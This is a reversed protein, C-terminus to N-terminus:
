EQPPEIGYLPCEVGCLTMQFSGLSCAAQLERREFEAVADWPNVAPDGHVLHDFEIAAGALKQEETEALPETDHERMAGLLEDTEPSTVEDGHILVWYRDCEAARECSERSM